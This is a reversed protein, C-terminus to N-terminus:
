IEVLNYNINLKDMIKKERNSCTFIIIQYEKFENNLYNLINELREDDYYAFAEDLIIPLKEKSVESVTSLRLSLYLQDITGLSLKNCNIYDGNELEVKLGEEDNFIVNKYKGNSIKESIESLKKTFKPTIENKMKNYAIEMVEKALYISKQLKELESKQEELYQLREELEIKRNIEEKMKNEDFELRHLDLDIKNKQEMLNSVYNNINKIDEEMYENIINIDVKEINSNIIKNIDIKNKELAKKNEDEINKLIDNKNKELIKIEKNKIKINKSIKKKKYFNILILILSIILSAILLLKNKLFYIAINIPLLLFLLYNFKNKNIKKNKLKDIRENYEQLINNNIRIKEENIKEEEKKNKIENLLYLENEVKNLENLLNNREKNIFSIKEEANNIINKSQNIIKIEELINNLPRGVTRDTGIEEILKKNLKEISKKFSINDEGTSLINAIKQTLIKQNQNDLIVENQETVATSLFLKEDIGTQEYFFENGKTKDINYNKSIDNMNEDYIKPNKKSFDRYVEVKQGEDLIYTLKGSYEGENWPKYKEYDSIEKGNKNKSAGYFISFIFKLLTSKGSENKGYILNINNNLEIQKNEIKGFNNIKLSKIKL